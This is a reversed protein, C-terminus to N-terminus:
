SPAPEEGDEADDELAAWEAVRALQAYDTYRPALGPRPQSLYCRAPDDYAEILAELRAVAAAVQDATTAPAKPRIPKEEGARHGGTLHWYLLAGAASGRPVDAFAGAHAMAAELPLQLALGAAVDQRGPPQGTKYDLITLAGDEAIEIRDARGVLRFDRHRLFWEGRRESLIRVPVAAARRRSEHLAVWDAIRDFRPAWWAELAPRLRAAQLEHSLAARLLAGADDPWDAGHADFFRHLGAHVLSGYDAAETSQDLPDLARLGLIHRAHIAYPDRQWTEIETVSLRRPRRAVPPCPRPPAVPRPGDLPKDMAAAWHTAPHLPLKDHGELYADLRTLWRAPVAPARDRRRPCSLVVVPAACACAVFDHASQGVVEEPSDLGIARRMPRSLWPGPDTAPPWVGEALGGLVMLDVSQLRAELLGWIFVRPHEGAQDGGRLARRSRVVGGELLADLLGPLTGRPQDPLVPLADLAAALRTALAEGEEAAWLRAPGPETDTAALREAADILAALMAGPAAAVASAMRLAPELCAEMRALLDRAEAPAAHQDVARRLGALGAGPRPGRLCALELARAAHRCAATSMGAAALPHKLMALLPVPALGADIAVALLRLFVAPPTEALPEGASDDAVVGFRLLEAAVRGALARDPTVLAARTGPRELGGRLVLAIAAAEEQQDSPALRWLAAPPAPAADQWRALAAAPLLAERLLGVRSAPVASPMAVPWPRVDGRTAQLDALLRRLGAQPHAEGLADWAADDLETDLGPLVVLGNPLNAVVRLLRAVSPIGGIFGAVWVPEDPPDDAWARAQADLLAVQRAAPNMQGQEALWDPWTATVIRLFALTRGWHEAYAADAAQPLASALDIEAREAEDMLAALEGALRWAGELTRPAGNAGQMALIMRALVALRPMPEVAPPVELAGHLALPVEDLAGIATIRPLLLPAGDAARLFAEALARAARRTPLLILGRSAALVPGRRTLWAAALADLFPAQAPISFLNV